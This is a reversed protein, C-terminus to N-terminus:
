GMRAVIDVNNYTATLLRPSVVWNGECPMPWGPRLYMWKGLSNGYCRAPISCPGGVRYDLSRVVASRRRFEQQKYLQSEIVRVNVPGRFFNSRDLTRTISVKKAQFPNLPGQFFNSRGLHELKRTNSNDLTLQIIYLIIYWYLM